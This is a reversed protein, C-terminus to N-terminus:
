VKLAKASVYEDIADALPIGLARLKAKAHQFSDRDKGSLALIEGQGANLREAVLKAERRAEAEDAFQKLRRHTGENYAVTFREYSRDTTRYIKVRVGGSKIELPWAQQKSPKM